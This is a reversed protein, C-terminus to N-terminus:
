HFLYVNIEELYTASKYLFSFSFFSVPYYFNKLNTVLLISANVKHIEEIKVTGDFILPFFFGSLVFIVVTM